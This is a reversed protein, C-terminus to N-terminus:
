TLDRQSRFLYAADKHHKELEDGLFDFLATSSIQEQKQADVFENLAKVVKAAIRECEDKHVHASACAWYVSAYAKREDFPEKHGKRKVIHMTQKVGEGLM